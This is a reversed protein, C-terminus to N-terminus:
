EQPNKVPDLATLSEKYLRLAEFVQAEEEMFQGLMICTKVRRTESVLHGVRAYLEKLEVLSSRWEVVRDSLYYCCTLNSLLSIHDGFKERAKRILQIAENYNGSRLAVQSRLFM